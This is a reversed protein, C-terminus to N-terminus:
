GQDVAVSPKTLSDSALTVAVYLAAAVGAMAAALGYPAGQASFLRGGLLYGATMGLGVASMALTQLSTRLREPARDQMFRVISLYWLGFTVGHLAQLGLIAAQSHFTAMGLWRAVSVGACALLVWKAKWRPLVKPALVMVTIELVVGLAWGRGIFRDSFGLGKVHLGFYADNIAHAAYYAINGLLFLVVDARRAVSVVDRVVRERQYTRAKAMLLTLVTAAAYMGSTIGLLMTPHSSGDLQGVLLVLAAFGVSGWLRIRSFEASKGGLADVASADAMPTLPARFFSFLGVAVM